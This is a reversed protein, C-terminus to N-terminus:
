LKTSREAEDVTTAGDHLPAAPLVFKGLLLAGIASAASGLLVALKAADLEAAGTFALGAIFIAMTFGVGAVIGVISLSKWTVGRPLSAVGLRVALFSAAIVGLPKGLLLGLTVGLGLRVMGPEVLDIGGVRVGANAFAFLPMIGYAVWPHLAAEVRVVPAVAERRADALEGLPELLEHPDEREARYRFKELAREAASIFGERGYGPRVPTLLGLVVGAITPHVGAVLFGAWVVIGPAVYVFPRRVGFAQLALVLFIGLAVIGLGQLAFSTSYFLAIVVIAGIDDIIALALLLVRLAPPVRKGFLSLIGVAFAIDTAMPVGWGRQAPRGANLSMYIAAPVLMGGLAAALPLAARRLESLEGQHIERRIELGVVFFFVVMLGDNIWFHVPQTSRFAGIGITVPAHWLHEYFAHWPSNALILAAAAALLLLIGSAAQIHLFLELPRFLTRAAKRVPAWSGPPVPPLPPTSM